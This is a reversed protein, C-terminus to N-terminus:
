NIQLLIFYLQQIMKLSKKLNLYLYNLIRISYSKKGKYVLAGCFKKLFISFEKSTLNGFNERKKINAFYNKYSIKNKKLM